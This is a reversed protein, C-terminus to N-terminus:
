RVVGLQGIFYCHQKLFAIRELSTLPVAEGGKGEGGSSSSLADTLRTFSAHRTITAEADSVEDVSGDAFQILSAHAILLNLTNVYFTVKAADSNLLDLNVSQLEATGRAIAQFEPTRIANAASKVDVLGGHTEAVDSLYTFLLKYSSEAICCIQASM